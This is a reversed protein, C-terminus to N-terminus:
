LDVSVIYVFVAKQEQVLFISDALIVGDKFLQVLTKFRQAIKEEMRVKHIIVRQHTGKILARVPCNLGLNGELSYDDLFGIDEFLDSEFNM